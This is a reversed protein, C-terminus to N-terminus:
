PKGSDDALSLELLEALRVKDTLFLYGFLAELATAYRYSNQDARRNGTLKLNRARRVIDREPDTLHDMLAELIKAQSEANVRRVVTQHLRKASPASVIEREREFLEFVADGLHALMRLPLDRAESVPLQKEFM